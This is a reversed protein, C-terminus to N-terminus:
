LLSWIGRRGGRGRVWLVLGKDELGYLARLISSRQAGLEEELEDLTLFMRRNLRAWELIRRQLKGLRRPREIV